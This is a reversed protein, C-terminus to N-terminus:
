SEQNETYSQTLQYEYYRKMIEYEQEQSFIPRSTFYDEALCDEHSSSQNKLYDELQSESAVWDREANAFFIGLVKMLGIRAEDARTVQYQRLRKESDSKSSNPSSELENTM